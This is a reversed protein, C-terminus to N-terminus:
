LSTCRGASSSSAGNWMSRRYIYIYIYVYLMCM